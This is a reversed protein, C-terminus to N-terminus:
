RLQSGRAPSQAQKIQLLIPHDADAAALLKLLEAEAAQADQLRGTKRYFAQVGM